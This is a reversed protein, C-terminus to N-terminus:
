RFWSPLLEDYLSSRTSQFFEVFLYLAKFAGQANVQAIEGKFENWIERDEGAGWYRRAQGILQLLAILRQRETVSSGTPSERLACGELAALMPRWPLVLKGLLSLQSQKKGLLVALSYMVKNGCRWPLEEGGEAPFALDQLSRAIRLTSADDIAYKLQRMRDLGAVDRSFM